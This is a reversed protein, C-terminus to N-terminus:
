EGNGILKLPIQIYAVGDVQLTNKLQFQARALNKLEDCPVSVGNVIYDCDSVSIGSKVGDRKYEVIANNGVVSIPTSPNSIDPKANFVASTANKINDSIQQKNDFIETMLDEKFEQFMELVQEQTYM